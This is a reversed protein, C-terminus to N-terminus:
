WLLSCTFITDSQLTEILDIQILLISAWDATPTSYVSQMEASPYSKGLSHGLYSLFCESPSAGTIGSHKKLMMGGEKFSRCLTAETRALMWYRHKKLM